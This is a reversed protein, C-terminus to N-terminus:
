DKRVGGADDGPDTDYQTPNDPFEDANDGVGDGDTDGMDSDDPAGDANDGIGDGDSDGVTADTADSDANDGIGDGDNDMTELPNSDFEDQFDPTEDGDKDGDAENAIGDGDADPDEENVIGDGDIDIPADPDDIWLILDEGEEEFSPYMVETQQFAYFGRQYRYFPSYVPDVDNFWLSLVCESTRNGEATNCCVCCECALDGCDSVIVDMTEIAFKGGELCLDNTTGFFSNDNIVLIALRTLELLSAPLSGTLMNDKLLIFQLKEMTGFESPIAGSLNNDALDLLQLATLQGLETPLTGNRNTQQLSLDVLNMMAGYSAPIPGATFQDNFAMFLYRLDPMMSFDDPIPGTFLNNSLDLHELRTMYRCKDGISGSLQNEQLALFKIQSNTSIVDPLPGSFRNGHLDVVTLTEMAFLGAPLDGELQNDSLDLTELRPWSSYIENKLTGTINNGGLLIAVAVCDQLPDLTGELQNYELNLISLERLNAAITAPIIGYLRNNSLNLTTLTKLANLRPDIMGTFNNNALNLTQLKTLQGMAQWPIGDEGSELHQASSLDLVFLNQLLGIERPITGRMENGALYLSTVSQDMDCIVGVSVPQGADDELSAMWDCHHNYQMWFLNDRWRDGDWAYYLVALAYREKLELTPEIPLQRDDEALFTCARNQPTGPTSLSYLDSWGEALAIEELEYKRNAVDPHLTPLNEVPPPAVPSAVPPTVPSALPTAPTRELTDEELAIGEEIGVVLGVTLSVVIAVVFLSTILCIRLCRNSNNNSTPGVQAKYEEINPLQDHAAESEDNPLPPPLPIDALFSPRYVIDDDDQSGKLDNLNSIPQEPRM